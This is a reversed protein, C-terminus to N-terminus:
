KTKRDLLEVFAGTKSVGFRCKKQKRNWHIEKNGLFMRNYDLSKKIKM